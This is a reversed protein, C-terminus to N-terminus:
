FRWRPSRCGSVRVCVPWRISYCCGNLALLLPWWAGLHRFRLRWLLVLGVMVCARQVPVDFGALLGYGLQLSHWVV